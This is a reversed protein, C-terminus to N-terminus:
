ILLIYPLKRCTTYGPKGNSVMWSSPIGWKHFGGLMHLSCTWQNQYITETSKMKNWSLWGGEARENSNRWGLLPLPCRHPYWSPFITVIYIYQKIGMEDVSHPLVYNLLSPVLFCIFLYIFLYIFIYIYIYILLNIYHVYHTDHPYGHCDSGSMEPLVTHIEHSVVSGCSPVAFRASYGLRHARLDVFRAYTWWCTTRTTSRGSFYSKTVQSSSIGLQISLWLIGHNWVVLCHKLKFWEGCGSIPDDDPFNQVTEGWVPCAGNFTGDFLSMVVPFVGDMQFATQYVFM